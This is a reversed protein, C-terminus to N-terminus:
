FTLRTLVQFSRPPAVGNISGFGNRNAFVLNGNADYPLNTIASSGISAFNATNNVGTFQTQNLANFMDVRFEFQTRGYINM